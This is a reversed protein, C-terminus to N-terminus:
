VGAFPLDFTVYDHTFKLCAVTLIKKRTLYYCKRGIRGTSGTSVKKKEGQFRLGETLRLIEIVDFSKGM